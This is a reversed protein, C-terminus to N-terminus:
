QRLKVVGIAIGALFLAILWGCLIDFPYHVGVYIRSYCSLLTIGFVFVALAWRRKVKPSLFYFFLMSVTLYNIAHNSPFSYKGGRYYTGDKKQILHVQYDEHYEADHSPRLRKATPKIVRAGIADGLFTVAAILLLIKWSKKRYFYITMLLLILFFAAGFWNSTIVRMVADGFPSHHGNIFQFLLKDWYFAPGHFFDTM